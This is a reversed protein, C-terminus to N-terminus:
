ANGGVALRKKRQEAAQQRLDEQQALYDTMEEASPVASSTSSPRAHGLAIRDGTQAPRILSNGLAVERNAIDPITVTSAAQQKTFESYCLPVVYSMSQIKDFKHKPKYAAFAQDICGKILEVTLGDVLMQRTLQYDEPSMFVGKGRRTSFYSEIERLSKGIKESDSNKDEDDDVVVLDKLDKIIDKNSRVNKDPLDSMYTQEGDSLDSMETQETPESLVNIDSRKEESRVNKDPYKKSKRVEIILGYPARTVHIYGHQELAEIWRSITKDTVEFVVALESLKLPKKGLVKGWTEGDREEEKTTSSVCWLFFWLATGIRKYHKPELLGSYMPFPYSM